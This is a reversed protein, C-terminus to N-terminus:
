LIRRSIAEAFSNDGMNSIHVIGPIKGKEFSGYSASINLAEAGNITAWRLLETISLAPFHQQLTNLEAIINLQGNSALSDTGVVMKYGSAALMYVDALMNNIYLNANPCLCWYLEPLMDSHRDIWNIDDRSTVTNHVLLLKHTKAIHPLFSQVSTRGTKRFGSIDVGISAYLDLFDGSGHQFLENEPHSEQNHITLLGGPKFNSILNFLNESVSYPAHPVISVDGEFNNYVELAQAFRADATAGVFGTAEIFNQYHIHHQQKQSVTHGTNCIDGVAVVGAEKMAHEATDIAEAIIEPSHNRSGMVTLLFKVMGTGPPILGKMHSLELHCHCNVFGPTLMGDFKNVDEGADRISVIADIEGKEDTVLVSDRLMEYGTFINEATFKRYAM